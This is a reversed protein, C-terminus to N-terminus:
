SVGVKAVSLDIPKSAVQLKLMSPVPSLIVEEKVLEDEVDESLFGCGHSSRNLGVSFLSPLWKVGLVSILESITPTLGIILPGGDM